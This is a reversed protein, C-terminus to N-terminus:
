WSVLIPEGDIYDIVMERQNLHSVPYAKSTAPGEVGVVLIAPDWDAGEASTFAPEYIPAIQDRRLLQRYSQPTEEGAQVPDYVSDPDVPDEARSSEPQVPASSAVDGGANSDSDGSSAVVFIGFLVVLGGLLAVLIARRRMHTDM